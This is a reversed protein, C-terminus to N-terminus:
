PTSMIITAASNFEGEILDTKALNQKKVLAFMLTDKGQGNPIGSNCSRNM